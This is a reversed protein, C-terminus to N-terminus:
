KHMLSCSITVKFHPIDTLKMNTNSPMHCEECLSSFQMVEGRVDEPEDEGEEADECRTGSANGSTESSLATSANLPNALNIEPTEDISQNEKKEDDESVKELSSQLFM